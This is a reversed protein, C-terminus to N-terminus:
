PHSPWRDIVLVATYVASAGFLNLSKQRSQANREEHACWCRRGFGAQSTIDVRVRVRPQWPTTSQEVSVVIGVDDPRVVPPRHQEVFRVNTGVSLDMKM